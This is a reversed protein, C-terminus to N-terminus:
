NEEQYRDQNGPLAQIHAMPVCAVGLFRGKDAEGSHKEPDSIMKISLPRETAYQNRVVLRLVAYPPDIAIAVLDGRHPGDQIEALIGRRHRIARHRMVRVAILHAVLLIAWLAIAVDLDIM